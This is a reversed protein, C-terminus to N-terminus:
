NECLHTEIKKKYLFMAAQEDSHAVLSVQKANAYSEVAFVHSSPGLALETVEM